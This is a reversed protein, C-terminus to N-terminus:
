CIIKVINAIRNDVRNYGESVPFHFFIRNSARMSISTSGLIVNLAFKEKVGKKIGEIKTRSAPIIRQTTAYIKLAGLYQILMSPPHLRVKYQLLDSNKDGEFHSM